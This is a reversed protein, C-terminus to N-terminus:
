LGISFDERAHTLNPNYYPDLSIRDGWKQRLYDKERQFRVQKEATDDYGRTKSEFHYLEAFPTFVNLYGADLVKLCFDVDNYAVTLREDMGDVQEYVAKRVVLCAGTVASVNQRVKLRNFYGGSGRPFCRHSHAAYGGLGLIVGAHQVTEDAYYLKAGVCGVDPRRALMVMEDLWGSSIVDVDNNLLGLIEGRALGAAFNCIRSFNFPEDLRAVRVSSTQAIEQLYRQTQAEVSGNDVILIELDRYDTRELIGEVCKALLEVRDRTPIILTVLPLPGSDLFTVRYFNEADTADVRVPVHATSFYDLLARKGAAHTYGKRSAGSATSRDTMRWHYLIKPIHLIRSAQTYRSCRLLLDYDQAGEVGTRFGGVEDVLARRYVCLHTVYNHSYLLYPNWDSKFHPARRNGKPDIFDEDSYIIDLEPKRRIECVIESLATPALEDDHDLFTVFDGTALTLARNSTVSIHGHSNCYVVKVRADRHAYEDIV